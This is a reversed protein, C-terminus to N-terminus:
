PAGEGGSARDSAAVWDNIRKLRDLAARRLEDLAATLGDALKWLDPELEPCSVIGVMFSDRYSWGTLNLGQGTSLVSLSILDQVPVGDAYLQDKPGRVNSVTLNFLPRGARRAGLNGLANAPKFLLTYAQWEALLQPGGGQEAAERAGRTIMRTAHLREVPDGINTALALYWVGMRNGYQNEDEPRRLGVPVSATLPAEPLEGAPELHSRLAGAAATLFVDNITCDFAARVLQIDAMALREWAVTRRTTLGRNYRTMPGSLAKAGTPLGLRRRNTSVLKAARSRMVLGPLAGIMARHRRLAVKALERPETPPTPVARVEGSAKDEPSHQYAQDLIRASAGGDAIAHHMKWVHAVRGGALGEILWLEWLPRDRDLKGEMLEDLVDALQEREGPAKVRTSRLHHDLDLEQQEVWAAAGLRLPASVMRWHLPPIASLAHQAWERLGQSTTPDPRGGSSQQGREAPDLILVKLTHMPQIPSEMYLQFLDNGTLPQM